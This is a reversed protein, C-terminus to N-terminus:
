FDSPTANAFVYNKPKQQAMQQAAHAHEEKQRPFEQIFFETQRQGNHASPTIDTQKQEALPHSVFHSPLAPGSSYEHMAPSVYPQQSMHIAPPFTAADPSNLPADSWSSTTLPGASYPPTYEPFAAYQPPASMPPMMTQMQPPAYLEAKLPTSPPSALSFQSPQGNLFYQHPTEQEQETFIPEEVTPLRTRMIDDSSLPTPPAGVHESEAQHSIKREAMSNKFEEAEAFTAINLPSRQASSPKRIGAYTVNLSQGSSKVHRIPHPNQAQRGFRFTPSMAPAGGYSHSRLAATGLAAPRPRKRRAAIDVHHEPKKFQEFHAIAPSRVPPTGALVFQDLTATLEDSSSGRRSSPFCPMPLPDSEHLAMHGHPADANMTPAPVTSTWGDASIAYGQIAGPSEVTTRTADQLTGHNHHAQGDFGFDFEREESHQPSLRWTGSPTNSSWDSFTPADFQCQDHALSSPLHQPERYPLSTFAQEEDQLYQGRATNAANLARQLSAWSADQVTDRGAAAEALSSAASAHSMGASSGSPLSRSAPAATNIQLPITYGTPIHRDNNWAEGIGMGQTMEFEEQKKMQKAKARRNQFWNQALV